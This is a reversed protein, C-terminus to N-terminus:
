RYSRCGQRSREVKDYPHNNGNSEFYPDTEDSDLEKGRIGEIIGKFHRYFSSARSHDESADGLMVIMLTSVRYDGSPTDGPIVPIKIHSRAVDRSKKASPPLEQLPLYTRLRLLPFERRM